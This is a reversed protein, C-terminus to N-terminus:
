LTSSVFGGTEVAKRAKMPGPVAQFMSWMSM